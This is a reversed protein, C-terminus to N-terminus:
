VLGLSQRTPVNLHGTVPLNNDSQFNAIAQRTAPGPVGDIAGNYYGDNALQQQASAM